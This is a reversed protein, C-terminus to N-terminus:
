RDGRVILLARAVLALREADDGHSAARWEGRLWNLVADDTVTEAADHQLALMDDGNGIVYERSDGFGVAIGNGDLDLQRSRWSFRRSSDNAVPPYFFTRQITDSM